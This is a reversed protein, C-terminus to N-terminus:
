SVLLLGVRLASSAMYWGTFVLCSQVRFFQTSEFKGIEFRVVFRLSDFCHLVTMFIYMYIMLISYSDVSFGM